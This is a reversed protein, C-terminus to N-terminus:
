FDHYLNRFSSRLGFSILATKKDSLANKEQRYLGSLELRMNYQPNILFSVTGEAYYLNTNIGQGVKTSNQTPVFPKTVDKGNNEGAVDLGYKAYMLQGQFDFRGTTYNLIGNLERFNAGFPDGLPQSYYTYASISAPNSYTYPKVTNYELLYNFNKVGFIDAGRIGLQYGNTNDTNNSEFFNSAKFRDILLQGYLATKNFIKYKGTFGVLANGPQSSPGFSSVFLVPNIFNVDFGRRNGQADAEPVIYANFFGLSLSNTVNWDLYHFLAWKRRNSGFSDFKPQNIDQMYTWMAMYQVNGLNATVRLLPAPASFDSLLLSRYGDGIFTKDQGLTVNLYNTPTYSLIATAYSYDRYSKGPARDYAQGPVFAIQNVYDTYYDPFAAQNEYGSTYFSFKTGVTGGFQFGRTNLGIKSSPGFGIPKFKEKQDTKDEFDHGFTNELLLDGYFTYEKTKVDILHENFLKRLFWNKRTSDVGVNMLQNYRKNLTSDILFPRLSTHMRTSKSYVDANFKQYFQYSHPLYVSQAKGVKVTLTIICLLLIFKGAPKTFIKQM